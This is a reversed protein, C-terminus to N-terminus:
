RVKKLTILPEFYGESNNGDIYIKIPRILMNKKKKNVEALFHFYSSSTKVFGSSLNIRRSGKIRKMGSIRIKILNKGEINHIGKFVLSDENLYIIIYTRYSNNFIFKYGYNNPYKLLWHGDIDKFSIPTNDIITTEPKATENVAKEESKLPPTNDKNDNGCASFCLTVLITLYFIYFKM